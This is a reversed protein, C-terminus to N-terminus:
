GSDSYASQPSSVEFNSCEIADAFRVLEEVLQKQSVPGLLKLRDWQAEFVKPIAQNIVSEGAATLQIRITRRDKPEPLRAIYHLTELKNIRSNLGAGSLLLHKTLEKPSLSYPAGARRLATLVDFTGRVLNYPALVEDIFATCQIYIRGILGYIRVPVPDIDPREAQWQRFIEDVRERAANDTVIRRSKKVRRTEQM